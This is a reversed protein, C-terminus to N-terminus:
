QHPNGHFPYPFPYSLHPHIGQQLLYDHPLQFQGVQQPLPLHHNTGILQSIEASRNREEKREKKWKMRRNQFWIKVQRDTLGVSKAVELRRERSLYQNFHFEKELELLQFKTYPVRKKRGAATLWNKTPDFEPNEGETKIEPCDEDDSEQQNPNPNSDHNSSSSKPSSLSTSPIKSPPNSTPTDKSTVPPAYSPTIEPTHRQTTGHQASHTTISPEINPTVSPAVSVTQLVGPTPAVSTPPAAEAGPSLHLPLRPATPHGPAAPRQAQALYPHSLYPNTPNISSTPIYQNSFHPYGYPFSM